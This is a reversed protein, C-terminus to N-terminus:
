HCRHRRRPRLDPQFYEACRTRRGVFVQTTTTKNKKSKLSITQIFHVGVFSSFVHRWTTSSSPKEGQQNIIEEQLGDVKEEWLRRGAGCCCHLPSFPRLLSISSMLYQHVNEQLVESIERRKKKPPVVSLFVGSPPRPASNKM